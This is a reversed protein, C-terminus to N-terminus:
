AKKKLALGPGNANIPAAKCSLPVLGRVVALVGLPIFPSYLRAMFAASPKGSGLIDGVMATTSAIISSGFILCTSNFWPKGALLGYINLVALPFLYFLELMMLAMFFPPRELVLYDQSVATYFKYFPNRDYPVVSDPIDLPVIVLIGVFALLLLGDVVKGLNGM